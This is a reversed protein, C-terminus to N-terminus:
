VQCFVVCVGSDDVLPRGALGIMQLVDTIPYDVYRHDRGEFYQTDMIIVVRATLRTAWALDRALVVVQIAEAEYLGEVIRQDSSSLGGHIFGIGNSLTERLTANQIKALHPTLDAETCQLFM